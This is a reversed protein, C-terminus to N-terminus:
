DPPPTFEKKLRLESPYFNNIRTPLVKVWGLDNGQYHALAWGNLAETNAQLERKQLYAIAQEWDLELRPLSKKKLTSVALHHDPIFKKGNIRGLKVGFFCVNMSAALARADKFLGKPIAYTYEQFILYEWKEPEEVWPYLVSEYKKPLLELKVRMKKGTKIKPKGRAEGEKRFGALFFGEGKTKHPYFRYGVGSKEGASVPSPTIGLNGCEEEFSLGQLPANELLWQVQHEDEQPAYTCTSYILIGGPKLCPLIDELIERQVNQCSQVLGESWQEISKPDKRFMGEGSCPADVVVLDFYERFPKFDGSHNSTVIGNALGWRTLNEMLAGVRKSVLENSVLLSGEPLLSGILTSKGGPSACLDLARIPSSTDIWAEIAKQLFMSSAEQVYYGGAFIHPDAAFSPREPLYYGSDSWPVPTEGEFQPSPKQLHKRLSIIRPTQLSREFAEYENGLQQKM